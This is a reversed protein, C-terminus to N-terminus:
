PRTSGYIRIARWEAFDTKPPEPAEQRSYTAYRARPRDSWHNKGISEVMKPMGVREAAIKGGFPGSNGWSEFVQAPTHRHRKAPWYLVKFRVDGFSAKIM